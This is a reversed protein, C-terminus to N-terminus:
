FPTLFIRSDFNATKGYGPIIYSLLDPSSNEQLHFVNEGCHASTGAAENRDVCISRSHREIFFASKHEKGLFIFM